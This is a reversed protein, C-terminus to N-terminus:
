GLHEVAKKLLVLLKQAIVKYIEDELVEEKAEPVIVRINLTPLGKNQLFKFLNDGELDLCGLTDQSLEQPTETFINGAFIRLSASEDEGVSNSNLFLDVLRQCSDAPHDEILVDGPRLKENLSTGLGITIVQFIGENNIVTELLSDIDKINNSDEVLYFIKTYFKGRYWIDGEQEFTQLESLANKIYESELSFASCILTKM